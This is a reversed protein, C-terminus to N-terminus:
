CHDPWRSGRRSGQLDSLDMFAIREALRLVQLVSIISKEVISPFPFSKRRQHFGRLSVDGFDSKQIFETESSIPGVFATVVKAWLKRLTGDGRSASSGLDESMM